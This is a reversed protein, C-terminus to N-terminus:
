RMSVQYGQSMGKWFPYCLISMKNHHCHTL